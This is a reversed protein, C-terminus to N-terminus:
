GKAKQIFQPKVWIPDTANAAANANLAANPRPLRDVYWPLRSSVRAELHTVSKLTTAKGVLAM